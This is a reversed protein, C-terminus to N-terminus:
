ATSLQHSVSYAHCCRMYVCVFYAMRSIDGGGGGGCFFFGKYTDRPIVKNPASLTTSKHWILGAPKGTLPLGDVVEHACGGETLM